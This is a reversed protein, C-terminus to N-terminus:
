GDARDVAAHEHRRGDARQRRGRLFAERRDTPLRHRRVTRGPRRGPAGTGEGGGGAREAVCRRGSAAGPTGEAQPHRRQLLVPLPARACTAGRRRDCRCLDRCLRVAPRALPHQDEHVAQSGTSPAHACAVSTIHRARRTLHLAGASPHTPRRCPPRGTARMGKGVIIAMDPTIGNNRRLVRISRAHASATRSHAAHNAAGASAASCPTGKSPKANLM